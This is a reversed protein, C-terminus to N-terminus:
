NDVLQEPETFLLEQNHAKIIKLFFNGDLFYRVFLRSVYVLFLVLPHIIGISRPVGSIGYITILIITLLGYIGIALSISSLASKGSYRFITKYFGSIWFVLVALVALALASFLTNEKLKIFEDLRLYFSLWFSIITLSFDCIVAAFQKVYRPLDSISGFLNYLKKLM